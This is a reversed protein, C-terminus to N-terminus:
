PVSQSARHPDIRSQPKADLMLCDRAVFKPRGGRLTALRKLRGAQDGEVSDSTAAREIM